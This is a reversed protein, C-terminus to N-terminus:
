ANCHREEINEYPVSYIDHIMARVLDLHEDTSREGRSESGTVYTGTLGSILSFYLTEKDDSWYVFVCPERCLDSRFM